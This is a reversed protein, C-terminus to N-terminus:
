RACADVGRGDPRGALVETARPDYGGGNSVVLAADTPAAADAPSAEYSHPDHQPGSIISTVPVHDGAVTAAVSGWVDTSAVVTAARHEQHVDRDQGCAASGFAVASVAVVACLVRM